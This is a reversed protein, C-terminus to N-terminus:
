PTASSTHDHAVRWGVPTRHMWLTFLGSPADQGRELRWRGFVLADSASLMRVDLGSFALRGMAERSGYRARYRRLVTEWGLTVDGGSAFRTDASTDYGQMFEDISGRNWAAVQADLVARVDAEAGAGHRTGPGTRSGACGMALCAALLPVALRRAWAPWPSSPPLDDM